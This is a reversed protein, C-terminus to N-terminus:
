INGFGFTPFQLQTFRVFLIKEFNIILYAVIISPQLGDYAETLQPFDQPNWEKPSSDLFELM